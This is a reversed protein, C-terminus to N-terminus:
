KRVYHWVGKVKKLKREDNMTYISYNLYTAVGIWAMYPLLLKGALPEARWFSVTTPVLLAGLLGIDVLAWLWKRAQFFLPSWAFNLALQAGYFYLAFKPQTVYDAIGQLTYEQLAVEKFTKSGVLYSAYGMSTYLVTWVVPFAWRPPNYKPKDVEQYWTEVASRTGLGSIFGGVIPLTVAGVLNYIHM